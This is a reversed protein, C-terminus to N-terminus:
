LRRSPRIPRSATERAEAHERGREESELAPRAIIFAAGEANRRGSRQLTSQGEAVPSV